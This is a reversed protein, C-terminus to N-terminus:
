RGATQGQAFATLILRDEGVDCYLRLDFAYSVPGAAFASRLRAATAPDALKLVAEHEATGLEPLAVPKAGNAVGYNVGNFAVKFETRTVAVPMLNENELRVKLVASDDAFAVDLLTAHVGAKQYTTSCGALWAGALVLLALAPLARLLKM